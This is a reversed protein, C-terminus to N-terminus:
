EGSPLHSLFRNISQLGNLQAELRALKSYHAKLTEEAVIKKVLLDSVRGNAIKPIITISEGEVKLIATAVGLQKDYEGISDAKKQILNDSELRQGEKGLATIAKWIEEAVVLPELKINKM